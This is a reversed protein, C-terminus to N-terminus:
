ALALGLELVSGIVSRYGLLVAYCANMGLSCFSVKAMPIQHGRLEPSMANRLYSLNTSICISAKCSIRRLIDKTNLTRAAM